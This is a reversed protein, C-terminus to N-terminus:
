LKSSCKWLSTFFIGHWVLFHIWCLCFSCAHQSSLTLVQSLFQPENGSFWLKPALSSHPGPLLALNWLWVPRCCYALASAGPLLVHAPSVAASSVLRSAPGTQAKDGVERISQLWTFHPKGEDCKECPSSLRLSQDRKVCTSSEPSLARSKIQGLWQSCKPLSGPPLFDREREGKIKDKLHIFSDTVSYVFLYIFVYILKNFFYFDYVQHQM